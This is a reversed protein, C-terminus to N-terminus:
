IHSKKILHVIKKRKKNRFACCTKIILKKNFKLLGGGQYDNEPAEPLQSKLSFLKTHNLLFNM